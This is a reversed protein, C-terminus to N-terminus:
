QSGRPLGSQKTPVDTCDVVHTEAVSDSLDTHYEYDKSQFSLTVRFGPTVVQAYVMGEQPCGLSKDPWDVAVIQEVRIDPITAALTRALDAQAALAAAASAPLPATTQVGQWRTQVFRLGAVLALLLFLFGLLYPLPSRLRMM